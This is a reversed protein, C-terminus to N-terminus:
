VEELDRKLISKIRNCTTKNECLELLLEILRMKRYNKLIKEM